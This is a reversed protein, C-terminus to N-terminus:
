GTVAGQAAVATAKAATPAAAAVLVHIVDWLKFEKYVNIRTKLIIILFLYVLIEQM